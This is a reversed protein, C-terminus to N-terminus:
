SIKVERGNKGASKYIADLMKQVALGDAGPSLTPKNYLCHDVFNAMKLKFMGDFSEDGLWAPTKNVMHGAEDTFIKTPNWSCGGKDGMLEFSWSSEEIHAAWGAEITLVAGNEFRIRGVALDEVTHNKYDWGKWATEIKDSPKNGIYSFIDGVASVPKPSGMVFHAMELAHVGIDILPGGGQLDKNGFVGWNPIGRRRLARVRGYLINGFQGENAAQKLYSTRPNYRYQFGIVLKKGAAQAADLMRQGERANMALPKECLVHCGAKLADITPQLHLKNPTCVSVADLSENKLMDKYNTYLRDIGYKERQAQMTKESVDALAVLEVDKRKALEKLHIGAIGGSGIFGYKLKKAM